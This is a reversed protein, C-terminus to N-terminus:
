PPPPPPPPEIIDFGNMTYPGDGVPALFTVTEGAVTGTIVASNGSVTLATGFDNAAEDLTITNAAGAALTTAGTVTLAGSDTIAGSSTVNLDGSVTSASLDIANQDVLTVNNGSTIGVSNFDNTATDLTIDNGAGAALTTAGSITSASSDTIAGSTTLSLTDATIGNVGAVSAIDIGGTVNITVTQGPASVAINDIANAANGLTVADGATVALNTETLSATQAVTGGTILALTDTNAADVAASITVAGANAAGITISSATVNDLETDSLELTNAASDTASGLNIVDNTASTQITVSGTGANIMGTIAMKDATINVDNDASNLTRGGAMTFTGGGIDDTDADITVAGAGTSTMNDNLTVGSAANLNLIGAASIGGTTSNLNMSGTSTLTVNNAFNLTDNVAAANDYDADIYLTDTSVDQDVNIGDDAYITLDANGFDSATNSFSVQGNTGSTAYLRIGNNINATNAAAIGDVTVQTTNNGNGIFVDSATINQLEAGSITMDGATNGLGVTGSTSRRIYTSRIGSDLQGQLDVDAVVLTPTHATATLTAGNAITLTGTGNSDVDGYITIPSTLDTNVTVGNDAYILLDASGFDSATNSFLVQGDTGYRASLRIEDSINATNAATIGDVTIQSIQQGDGIILDDATINQLEAGSLTIDGATDGLGFTGGSIAHYIRIYSSGVNLQGQLDIDAATVYIRQNNTTVAAGIAVAFTGAGDRDSDANFSVWGTGPTMDIDANVAIDNHASLTLDYGTAPATITDNVEINGAQTNAGGTGTTITVNATSLATEITGTMLIANDDTSVFPSAGPMNTDVGAAQIIINNPDLLLTGNEGAIASLDAYGQYDLFSGSVEAFGGNGEKSGGRASITGYFRTTDDAWTIVKGGNGNTVADANIIADKSVYSGTANSEPGQGQYNGGILVTGGGNDGSVNLLANDFLGVKNGLVKITGGTEGSDLGSADLTGSVMTIGSDNGLLLIEGNREAVSQAQIIGDMNIVNDVVAQAAEASLQVMGGDALITGSNGVLANLASGDVATLNTTPRPTVDLQVLGDGYLDLSFVEGSALTVRGLRANIVGSNEVGPAVLAVLGGEAVTIEGRNVVTAGPDGQIDFRFDNNLIRENSIDTTTAVLGAVDIRSRPGFLIGHPNILMLRGNATLKGFISSPDNGLVRNVALASASPQQFDTHEHADISFGRWDIIAKDTQQLVTLKSTSEHVITASGAVVTGGEPNALVPSLGLFPQGVVLNAILLSRIFQLAASM